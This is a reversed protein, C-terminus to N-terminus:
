MATGSCKIKGTIELFENERLLSFKPAAFEIILKRLKADDETSSLLLKMLNGLPIKQGSLSEDKEIRFISDCINGRFVFIPMLPSVKM